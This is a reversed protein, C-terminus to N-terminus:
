TSLLLINHYLQFSFISSLFILFFNFKLFLYNSPYHLTYHVESFPFTQAMFAHRRGSSPSLAGDSDTANNTTSSSAQSTFLALPSAGLEEELLDLAESV